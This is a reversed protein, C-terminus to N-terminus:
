FVSCENTFIFAIGKGKIMVQNLSDREHGRSPVIIEVFGQKRILIISLFCKANSTHTLMCQALLASGLSIGCQPMEDPHASNSKEM